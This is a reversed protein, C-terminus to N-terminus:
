PKLVGRQVLQQKLLTLHEWAKADVMHKAWGIASNVAAQSQDCTLTMAVMVKGGNGYDSESLEQSVTVKAMGDGILQKYADQQEQSMRAEGEYVDHNVDIKNVITHVHVVERTLSALM